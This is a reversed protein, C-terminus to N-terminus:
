SEGEEAATGFEAGIRELAARTVVVADALTLDYVSAYPAVGDRVAFVVDIKDDYSFTLTALNALARRLEAEAPGALVLVHRRERRRRQPRTDGEARQVPPAAVEHARDAVPQLLAKLADAALKTRGGDLAEVALLSGNAVHDSWASFLARRRVKRPLRQSYDRPRPGFAVGGGRWIPSVTSGHRARGTGKQRWPKKKGGVVESRTKAKHTGLRKAALQAVVAAHVLDPRVEVGFVADDLAITSVPQGDAGHVAVEPM